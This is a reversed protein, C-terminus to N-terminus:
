HSNFINKPSSGSGGPMGEIRGLYNVNLPKGLYFNGYEIKGGKTPQIIQSLNTANSVRSSASDYGPTNKDYKNSVCFCTNSTNNPNISNLKTIYIIRSTNKRSGPIFGQYSYM